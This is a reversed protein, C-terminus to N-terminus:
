HPLLLLLLLLLWLFSLWPMLIPASTTAGTVDNIGCVGGGGGVQSAKKVLDYMKSNQALFATTKTAFNRAIEPDKCVSHDWFLFCFFLLSSALAKCGSLLTVYHYRPSLMVALTVDTCSGVVGGTLHHSSSTLLLLSTRCM